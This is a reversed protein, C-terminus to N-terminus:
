RLQKELIFYRSGDWDTAEQLPRYGLARYFEAAYIAAGTKLTHGGAELYAAEVYRVLASGIGKRFYRPDVYVHRLHGDLLGAMGVTEEGIQAVYLHGNGMLTRMERLDADQILTKVERDTYYAPACAQIADYRIELLRPLSAAIATVIKMARSYCLAADM